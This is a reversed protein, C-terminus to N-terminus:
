GVCKDKSFSIIGRKSNQVFNVLKVISQYQGFNNLIQQLAEKQSLNAQWLLHSAKKLAQIEEKSFGKRKLGIINPGFAKAREGAVLMYPPVDQAVGTKGGIFVHEGIHVFQHVASLGGIVAYNDVQVHGGLTACNAMIVNDGILCDHAVHTYAMFLCNSGVQTKGGGEATGRHLTTYERIKNNDGVILWTEEGAFKLDQPIEGVFAYSFVHNNQGLQTFSKIQAFADITCNDGIIAKEEIIVYPGIKINTGLEAKPHVIATPHITVSM